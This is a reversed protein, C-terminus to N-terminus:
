ANCLVFIAEYKDTNVNIKHGEPKVTCASANTKHSYIEGATIVTQLGMILWPESLIFVCCVFLSKLACTNLHRGTPFSLVCWIVIWMIPYFADLANNLLLWNFYYILSYLLGNLFLKHLVWNFQFGFKYELISPIKLGHNPLIHVFLVM